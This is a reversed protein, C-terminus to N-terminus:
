VKIAAKYHRPTPFCGYLKHSMQKYKTSNLQSFGCLATFVPTAECTRHDCGVSLFTCQLECFLNNYSKNRLLEKGQPASSCGIKPKGWRGSGM